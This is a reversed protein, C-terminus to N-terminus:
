RLTPIYFSPVVFKIDEAGYINELELAAEELNEKMKKFLPELDSAVDKAPLKMWNVARKWAEFTPMAIEHDHYVISIWERIVSLKANEEDRLEPLLKELTARQETLIAKLRALLPHEYQNVGDLVTDTQSLVDSFLRELKSMKAGAKM